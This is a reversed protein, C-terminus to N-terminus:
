RLALRAKAVTQNVILQLTRDQTAPNCRSEHQEFSRYRPDEARAAYRNALREFQEMFAPQQPGEFTAAIQNGPGVAALRL